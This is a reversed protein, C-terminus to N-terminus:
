MSNKSRQLGICIYEHLTSVHERYLLKRESRVIRHFLHNPSGALHM